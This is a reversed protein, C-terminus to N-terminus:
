TICCSVSICTSMLPMASVLVAHCCGCRRYSNLAAIAADPMRSDLALKALGEGSISLTGDFSVNWAPPDIVAVSPVHVVATNPGPIVSGDPNPRQDPILMRPFCLLVRLMIIPYREQLPELNVAGRPLVNWRSYSYRRCMLPCFVGFGRRCNRFSMSCVMRFSCSEPFAISRINSAFPAISVSGCKRSITSRRCNCSICLFSGAGDVYM